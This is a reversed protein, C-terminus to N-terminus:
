RVAWDDPHSAIYARAAARVESGVTSPGVRGDADLRFRDLARIALLSSLVLRKMGVEWNLGM